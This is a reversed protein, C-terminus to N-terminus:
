YARSVYFEAIDSLITKMESDPLPALAARARRVHEHAKDVTRGLANHRNMIAVIQGLAADSADAKGLSGAIIEREGPNADGLALIVPLTMKGERLDDGTNKGMAGSEGRYDLVDDVLQFALGLELGYDRMAVRGAEDAGGAMAGVEAAAQFLTATKARIVQDYDAPTAALDGAKSLQFVEGEAIITAAKALVGLADLKGTEVMMLFAQGLLYDGVLVSAQNGWIMRAAPRGRRMDSEDVVDDHLLTANHMFEVAAAYNTQAGSPREFALAAAVTLMPRLRKGGAEILYRALQPVMEVHSEARALILANVKDMEAQTAALLRDLAGLGAQEKAAAASIVM